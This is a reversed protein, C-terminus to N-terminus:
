PSQRPHARPTHQLKRPNGTGTSLSPKPQSGRSFMDAPIKCGLDYRFDLSKNTWRIMWTLKKNVDRWKRSKIYAIGSAGHISSKGVNSSFHVCELPFTPLYTGDLSKALNISFNMAFSTKWIPRNRRGVGKAEWVWACRSYWPSRSAFVRHQCPEDKCLM